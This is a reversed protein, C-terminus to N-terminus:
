FGAEFRSAASAFSDPGFGLDGGNPASRGYQNMAANTPSLGGSAPARYGPNGAMQGQMGWGYSGGQRPGGINSPWGPQGGFQFQSGPQTGPMQGPMLGNGMPALLRTGPSFLLPMDNSGVFGGPIYNGATSTALMTERDVTSNVDGEVLGQGNAKFKLEHFAFKDDPSPLVHLEQLSQAAKQAIDPNDWSYRLATQYERIANNLNGMKQYSLGLYYHAEADAPNDSLHDNLMPVALDHLDKSHHALARTRM